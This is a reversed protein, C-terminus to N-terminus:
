REVEALAGALADVMAPGSADTFPQQRLGKPSQIAAYSKQAIDFADPLYGITGNSYGLVMLDPHRWRRRLDLDFATFFESANASVYLDGVRLAQVETELTSAQGDLGPLVEDAWEVAFRSIAAVTKEVSGGYRTPLKAPIGVMKSAIGELWGHTDGTKLRHLGEEAYDLVEQRAWPRVPLAATRSAAATGPVEVPRAAKVARKVADALAHIPPDHRGPERYERLFEV